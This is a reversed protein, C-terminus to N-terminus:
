PVVPFSYTAGRWGGGFPRAVIAEGQAGKYELSTNHSMPTANEMITIVFNDHNPLIAM